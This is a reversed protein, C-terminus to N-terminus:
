LSKQIEQAETNKKLLFYLLVKLHTNESNKDRRNEMIFM